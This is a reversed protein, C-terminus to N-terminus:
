KVMEPTKAKGSLTVFYVDELNGAVAEFGNGPDSDAVIHVVTNGAFLRQSIVTYQGRYADLEERGITKRWIRGKLSGILAQPAGELQIRGGALIAM